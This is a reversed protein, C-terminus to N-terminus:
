LLGLGRAGPQDRASSLNDPLNLSCPAVVVPGVCLLAPLTILPGHPLMAGPFGFLLGAALVQGPATVSPHGGGDLEGQLGGPCPITM